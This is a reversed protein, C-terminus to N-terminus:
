PFSCDTSPPGGDNRWEDLSQREKHKWVNLIMNAAQSLTVAPYHEHETITIQIWDENVGSHDAISHNCREVISQMLRSFIQKENLEVSSAGYVDEDLQSAISDYYDLEIEITM